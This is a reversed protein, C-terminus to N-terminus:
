KLVCGMFDDIDSNVAKIRTISSGIIFDEPFNSWKFTFFKAHDAQSNELIQSFLRGGATLTQYNTLRFVNLNALTWHILDGGHDMDGFGYFLHTGFGASIKEMESLVGSPRDSRITFEDAYPLWKNDRVRVAVCVPDIVLDTAQRQDLALHAPKFLCSGCIGMIQPMFKDSKVKDLEWAKM